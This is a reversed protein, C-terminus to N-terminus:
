DAAQHFELRDGQGAPTLGATEMRELRWANRLDLSQIRYGLRRCAMLLEQQSRCRRLGRRLVGDMEAEEVLRQLESWSM